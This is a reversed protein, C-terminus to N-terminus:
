NAPFTGDAWIRKGIGPCDANAASHGCERTPLGPRANYTDNLASDSRLHARFLQGETVFERRSSASHMINSQDFGTAADVHLLDFNHGLEHSLLEDGSRDAMAVFDSGISCAQGRGRGGDVTGVYYINIRGPDRGIDNQLDARMSCDFDSYADADDDDTADKIQFTSFGAGMRETNWISSTTVCADIARDRQDQFPGTVIWVTVALDLKNALQVSAVDPGPTWPAPDLLAPPRHNTFVTVESDGPATSTMNDIAVLPSAVDYTADDVATNTAVDVGDVLLGIAQDDPANTVEILDVDCGCLVLAVGVSTWRPTFVVRPPTYM